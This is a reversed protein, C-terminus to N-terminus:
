KVPQLNIFEQGHNGNPSFVVRQHGSFRYAQGEGDTVQGSAMYGFADVGPGGQAWDSDTLKIRGTGSMIPACHVPWWTDWGGDFVYVFVEPMTAMVHYFAPINGHALVQYNFENTTTPAQCYPPADQVTVIAIQDTTPDYWGTWWDDAGAVQGIVSGNSAPNASFSPGPAPATPASTDACALPMACALVALFRLSRQM